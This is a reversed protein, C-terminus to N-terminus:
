RCRAPCLLPGFRGAGSESEDQRRHRQRGGRQGGGQADPAGRLDLGRPRGRRHRRRRRAIQAAAASSTEAGRSPARQAEALAKVQELERQRAAERAMEEADIRRAAPTSSSSRRRSTPRRIARGLRREPTRQDRWSLAIQLDPDRFLGAKGNDGSRPRHGLLRRFIRASQAEEEVWGRLRQWGRM